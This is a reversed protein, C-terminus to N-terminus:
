ALLRAPYQFLPNGYEKGGGEGFEFGSQPLGLEVAVQAHFQAASQQMVDIGGHEPHLHWWGDRRLAIAPIGIVVFEDVGGQCRLRGPQDSAIQIQQIQWGNRSQVNNGGTFRYQQRLESRTSARRTASLRRMPLDIVVCSACIAAMASDFESGIAVRL